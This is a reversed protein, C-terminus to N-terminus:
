QIKLRFLLFQTVQDPGFNDDSVLILSQSGDSLRPGFTMGELNDLPIGLDNLHLLLQKQIASIGTLDGKLSSVASIDTAAGTAAQFLKINFGSLGFSRELTLFHGAQDLALVETLGQILTGIPPLDLLYLHESLLLPPADGLVYHLWRTKIAPNPKEPDLDQILASETTIFLRLPEGASPVTGLPNTTLGEFGYNHQIGSVPQGEQWVPTYRKPIPIPKLKQGTQLDFEQVSPPIQANADGESSIIVTQQPTLAIGEPDISGKPFLNGEADKLFTVAEIEVPKLTEHPTSDTPPNLNLKLTYFRAPAQQSRDDSIAYFRDRKRDYTIGSLGGVPTEAFSTKPLSDADLFELSVNLYTRELASVQPLDCATLLLALIFACLGSILRRYQM